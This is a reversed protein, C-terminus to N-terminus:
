KDLLELHQPEAFEIGSVEILSEEQNLKELDVWAKYGAIFTYIAFIHFGINIIMSDDELNTFISIFITFLANIIVMILAAIFSKKWKTLCLLYCVIYFIVVIIAIALGFAAAYTIYHSQLGMGFFISYIPLLPALLTTLSFLEITTYFAIINVVTVIAMFLLVIKATQVRKELLYKIPM